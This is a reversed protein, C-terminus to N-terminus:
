LSSVDSGVMHTFYGPPYDGVRKYWPKFNPSGFAFEGLSFARHQIAEIIYSRPTHIYASEEYPLIAYGGRMVVEDFVMATEGIYIVNHWMRYKDRHPKIGVAEAIDMIVKPYNM